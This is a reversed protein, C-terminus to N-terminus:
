EDGEDAAQDARQSYASSTVVQYTLTVISLYLTERRLRSASYAPKNEARLFAMGEANPLELRSFDEFWAKIQETLLRLGDIEALQAAGAAGNALKKQVGISVGIEHSIDDSSDRDDDITMPSITVLVGSAAGLEVVIGYSRNATFAQCFTGTAASQLSTLIAKALKVDLSDHVPPTTPEEAM